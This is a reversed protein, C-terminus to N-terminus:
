EIREILLGPFADEFRQLIVSCYKESIELMRCKRGLNNCAVMTTGSGGFPDYVDGTTHTIINQVVELPKISAHWGDVKGFTKEEWNLMYCDHAADKNKEWEAKGFSSLLIAESTLLWGRWVNTVDNRKYMWLMREFKHGAKRAADLWVPFLRPSQFAIVVANEIPMVSLCGEFLEQLGEPDDNEIGARNIGYPPDTVCAGCKEGQMLKDVSERKTSDGCLLRHEAIKWLSGATVGWKERLADARDFQPEADGMVKEAEIMTRVAGADMNLQALWASPDVGWATLDSINITNAIVDWDFTGANQNATWNARRFTAEDWRVKRFSYRGNKWRIFGEAITGQKTPENYDAVLEIDADQVNFEGANEGFMSRLRQHGGCIQGSNQDYVIGGLDGLEALSDRLRKLARETISRPNTLYAKM